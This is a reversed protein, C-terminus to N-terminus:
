FLKHKKYPSSKLRFAILFGYFRANLVRVLLFDSRESRPKRRLDADGRDAM